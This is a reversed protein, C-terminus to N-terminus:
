VFAKLNIDIDIKKQIPCFNVYVGILTTRSQMAIKDSLAIQRLILYRLRRRERYM